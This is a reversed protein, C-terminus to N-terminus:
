KSHVCLIIKWQEYKIDYEVYTGSCVNLQLSENEVLRVNIFASHKLTTNKYVIWEKRKHLFVKPNFMNSKDNVCASQMM